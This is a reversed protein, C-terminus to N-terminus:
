NIWKDLIKQIEDETLDGCPIKFVIKTNNTFLNWNIKEPFIEKIEEM